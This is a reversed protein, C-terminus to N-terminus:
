HVGNQLEKVQAELANVKAALIASVSPKHYNMIVGDENYQGFLVDQDALDEAIFDYYWKDDDERYFHAPSLEIGALYDLVDYDIHSKFRRASTIHQMVYWGNVGGTLLVNASGGGSYPQFEAEGAVALTKNYQSSTQGVIVQSGKFWLSSQSTGDTIRRFGIAMTQWDSGVPDRVAQLELNVSNGTAWAWSQAAIISGSGSDLVLSKTDVLLAGDDRSTAGQNEGAAKILVWDILDVEPTQGSGGTYGVVLKPPTSSDNNSESQLAMFMSGIDGTTSPGVIQTDLTRTSGSGTVVSMVKGPNNEFSDGTYLKIRDDENASMEIRQGSAATKFAGSGDLVLSGGVFLSGMLQASGLSADFAFGVTAAGDVSSLDVPNAGDWNSSLYDNGIFTGEITVDGSIVGASAFLTGYIQANMARLDKVMQTAGPGIPLPGWGAM